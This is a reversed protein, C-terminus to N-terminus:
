FLTPTLVANACLPCRSGSVHVLSATPHPILNGIPNVPTCIRPTKSDQTHLHHSQNRGIAKDPTLHHIPESLLLFNSINLFLPLVLGMFNCPPVCNALVFNLNPFRPLSSGQYPFSRTLIHLRRRTVVYSLSTSSFQRCRNLGRSHQVNLTYTM